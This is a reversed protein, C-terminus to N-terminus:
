LGFTAPEFGAGAVVNIQVSSDAVVAVPDGNENAHVPIASGILGRLASRAAERDRGHNQLDKAMREWVARAAPLIRGPQATSAKALANEAAIVAAECAELEAKTSPTLIGAKIAAMVHGHETKAKALARQLADLDPAGRKM